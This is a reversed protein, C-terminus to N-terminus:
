RPRYNLVVAGSPLAVHNVLKLDIAKHLGAFLTPGHGVIRPHMVFEYEDILGFEALALPLTLGGLAIGRGPEQKLARVFAALDGRVIEAGHWDVSKLTNSVVFKKMANIVHAFPMMWEPLGPPPARWFEMLEYTTRGLLISDSKALTQTAHRHTFEDPMGARHDACGDLMLNISYRLPQM